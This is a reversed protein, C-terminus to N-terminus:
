VRNQRVFSIHVDGYPHPSELVYRDRDHEYEFRVFAQGLHCPQVDKVQTRRFGELFEKIIEEVIPFHLANSPLPSITVIALNKNRQRPRRGAVARVMMPRNPIEEVHM